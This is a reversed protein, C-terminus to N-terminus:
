VLLRFIGFESYYCVTGIRFRWVESFVPSRFLYNIGEARGLLCFGLDSVPKNAAADWGLSDGVSLVLSPKSEVCCDFFGLSKKVGLEMFELVGDSTSNDWSAVLIVHWLVKPLVDVVNGRSDFEKGRDFRM